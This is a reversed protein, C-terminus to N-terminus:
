SEPQCQRGRWSVGEREGGECEFDAEAVSQTWQLVSWPERVGPDRDSDCQCDSDLCSLSGPGALKFVAVLFPRAMWGAPSASKLNSSPPGRQWHVGRYGHFARASSECQVSRCSQRM